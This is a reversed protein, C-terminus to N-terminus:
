RVGVVAALHLWDDWWLKNSGVYRSAFRMVIVIIPIIGTVYAVIRISNSLNDHPKDCISAQIRLTAVSVDTIGSGIVAVLMGFTENYNCQKELCPQLIKTSNKSSCQCEIDLLTCGIAPLNENICDLKAVTLQVITRKHWTYRVACPPIQSLADLAADDLSVANTTPCCASVLLVFTFVLHPFLLLMKVLYNVVIHVPLLLQKEHQPLICLGSYFGCCM